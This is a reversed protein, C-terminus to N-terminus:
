MAPASDPVANVTLNAPCVIELSLIGNFHLKVTDGSVVVVYNSAYAPPPGVFIPTTAWTGAVTNSSTILLYDTSTDLTAPTKILFSTTSGTVTGKAIILDNPGAATRGLDYNFTSGATLTLNNSFTLTDFTGDTGPFIANTPSGATTKVAGNVSGSGLLSQGAAMTYTIASVDFTAGAAVSITPTKNISGGTKLALTGANIVTPGSYTNAGSM